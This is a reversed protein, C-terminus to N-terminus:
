NSNKRFNVSINVVKRKNFSDTFGAILQEGTHIAIAV